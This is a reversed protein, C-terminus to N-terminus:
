MSLLNTRWHHHVQFLNKTCDLVIRTDSFIEFDKVLFVIILRMLAIVFENALQLKLKQRLSYM